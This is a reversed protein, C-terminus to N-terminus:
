ARAGPRRRVARVLAAAAQGVQAVGLYAVFYLIVTPLPSRAVGEAARPPLADLLLSPWYLLQLWAELPRSEDLLRWAFAGGVLPTAAALLACALVVFRHPPRM